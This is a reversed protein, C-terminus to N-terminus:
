KCLGNSFVLRNIGYKQSYIFYAICPGVINRISKFFICADRTYTHQNYYIELRTIYITNPNAGYDIYGLLLGIYFETYCKDSRNQLLIELHLLPAGLDLSSDARLFM